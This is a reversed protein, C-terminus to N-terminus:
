SNAHITFRFYKSLFYVYSLLATSYIVHFQHNECFDPYNACTGGSGRAALTHTMDVSWSCCGRNHSVHENHVCPPTVGTVVVGTGQPPVLLLASFLLCVFKSQLSNTPCPHTVAASTLPLYMPPTHCLTSAAAPALPCHHRHFSTIRRHLIATACIAASPLPHCRIVASPLPHCRIADSPLPLIFNFTHPTTLFGKKTRSKGTADKKARPNARSERWFLDSVFKIRASKILKGM